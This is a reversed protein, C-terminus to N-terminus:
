RKLEKKMRGIVYISIFIGLPMSFLSIILLPPNGIQIPDPHIDIIGLFSTFIVIVAWVFDLLSIVAWSIVLRPAKNEDNLIYIGLIVATIAVFVDMVGSVLGVSLPLLNYSYSMLLFVGGIRYTQTLILASVPIEKLFRKFKILYVSAFTMILAPTFSLIGFLTFGLWDSDQWKLVGPFFSFQGVIVALAVWSLVILSILRSRQWTYLAIVIALLVAIAYPGYSYFYSM